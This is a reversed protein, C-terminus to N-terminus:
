KELHENNSVPVPTRDRLLIAVDDQLDAVNLDWLGDARRVLSGHGGQFAAISLGDGGTVIIKGNRLSM